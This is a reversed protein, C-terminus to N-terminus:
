PGAGAGVVHADVTVQMGLFVSASGVFGGSIPVAQAPERVVAVRVHYDAALIGCTPDFGKWGAGPLFVEAWAHTANSAAGPRQDGSNCLYGSVFRAALGVQRAAEMLLLAFDRCTGARRQLTQALTQVGPEERRTYRFYLPVSQNLAILFELTRARRNADLFPRIWPQVAQEDQSDHRSLYPAVDRAIDDGYSFPIENVHPELLFDLPNSNYQEVVVRSEIRLQPVPERFEVLAISNGFIDRIWRLQSGPQIVLSSSRIQVDHGEIPRLMLRHAGLRVSEAYNYVTTHEISLRM